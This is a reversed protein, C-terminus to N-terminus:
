KAVAYASGDEGSELVWSNLMDAVQEPPCWMLPDIMSLYPVFKASGQAYESPVPRTFKLDIGAAKFHAASYLSKGGISNHYRDAGKLRCVEIVRAESRCDDAITLESSFSFSKAIGLYDFVATISRGNKRAVCLDQDTVVAEVLPYVADFYPAKVYASRLQKLFVEFKGVYDHQAITRFSSVSAVPLSFDFRQRNLLIANRNVYGQKIFNADDYFVFEDVSATLQYYGIYPFFYPQMLALKM